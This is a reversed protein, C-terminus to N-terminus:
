AVQDEGRCSLSPSTELGMKCISFSLGWPVGHSELSGEQNTASSPNLHFLRFRAKSTHEKTGGPHQQDPASPPCAECTQVTPVLLASDQHHQRYLTLEMPRLIAGRADAEHGGPSPQHWKSDWAERPVAGDGPKM